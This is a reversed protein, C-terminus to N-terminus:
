MNRGYMTVMMLYFFVPVPSCTSCFPGGRKCDITFTGETTSRRRYRYKEVQHHDIRITSVHLLFSFFPHISDTHQTQTSQAQQHNILVIHHYQGIQNLCQVSIM